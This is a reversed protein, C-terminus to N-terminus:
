SGVLILAILALYSEFNGDKLENKIGNWPVVGVQLCSVPHFLESLQTM